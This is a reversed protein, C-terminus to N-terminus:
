MVILTLCWQLFDLLISLVILDFVRLNKAVKKLILCIEEIKWSLIFMVFLVVILYFFWPLPNGGM